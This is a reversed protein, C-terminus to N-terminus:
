PGEVPYTAVDKDQIGLPREKLVKEVWWRKGNTVWDVSAGNLFGETKNPLTTAWVSLLMFLIAFAAPPFGAQYASIAVLATLFFGIPHVFAARVNPNWRDAVAGAFVILGAFIWKTAIPPNYIASSGPNGFPPAPFSM